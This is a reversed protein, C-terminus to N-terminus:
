PAEETLKKEEPLIIPGTELALDAQVVVDSSRATQAIVIGGLVISAGIVQFVTLAEQLWLWATFFAFAIESTALVGAATASLRKLASLSLLFPAFSGLVVNWSILVWV